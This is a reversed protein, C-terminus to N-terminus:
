LAPDGKEPTQRQAALYALVALNEALTAQRGVCGARQHAPHEFHLKHGDCFEDWLHVQRESDGKIDWALEDLLDFDDFAYTTQQGVRNTNWYEIVIQDEPHPSGPWGTLRVATLNRRHDWHEPDLYRQRAQEETEGDRDVSFGVSDFRHAHGALAVHVSRGPMRGIPSDDMGGRWLRLGPFVSLATTINELYRHVKTIRRDGIIGILKDALPDVTDPTVFAGTVHQACRQHIPQLPM